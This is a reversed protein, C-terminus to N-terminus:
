LNSMKSPPNEDYAPPQVQRLGHDPPHAQRHPQIMSPSYIVYPGPGFGSLDSGPNNTYTIPIDAPRGNSYPLRDHPQGMTDGMPMSHYNSFIAPIVLPYGYPQLNNNPRIIGSTLENHKCAALLLVICCIFAMVMGCATMIMAWPSHFTIFDRGILQTAVAIASNTNDISESFKIVTPM